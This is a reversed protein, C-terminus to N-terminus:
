RAFAESAAGAVTENDTQGCQDTPELGVM